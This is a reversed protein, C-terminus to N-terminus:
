KIVYSRRQRSSPIALQKRYKTVTRRAIDLGDQKLAAAIEEDSLPHMKDEKGVIDRVKQKVAVISKEEGDARTTGGTFFYKLAFVGRPTQMYKDAIARSVTSVHVGM